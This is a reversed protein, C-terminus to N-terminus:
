RKYVLVLFLGQAAVGTKMISSNIEDFGQRWTMTYCKNNRTIYESVHFLDRLKIFVMTEPSLRTDVFQVGAVLSEIGITM